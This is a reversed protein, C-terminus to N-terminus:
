APADFYAVRYEIDFEVNGTGLTPATTFAYCIMAQNLARVGNYIFHTGGGTDHIAQEVCNLHIVQDSENTLLEKSLLTSNNGGLDIYFFQDVMAYPTGKKRFKASVSRVEYYKNAGPAVLLEFPTALMDLIDASYMTINETLWGEDVAAVANAVATAVVAADEAPTPANQEWAGDTAPFLIMSGSDIDILASTEGEIEEAAAAEVIINNVGATDGTDVITLMPYEVLALKPLTITISGGATATDCELTLGDKTAESSLNTPIVFARDIILIKM